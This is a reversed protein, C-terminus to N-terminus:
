FLRDPEKEAGLAADVVHADVEFVSFEDVARAVALGDLDAIKVLVIPPPMVRSAAPDKLGNRNRAYDLRRMRFM